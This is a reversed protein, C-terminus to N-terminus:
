FMNRGVKIEDNPLVGDDLRASVEVSKGNVVRRIKLRRDTGEDALGGVAAIAQSVTTRAPLRYAGPNRVSGSVYFRQCEPVNVIDGDQLTVDSGPKGLEM